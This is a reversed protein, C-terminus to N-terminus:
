GDNSLIASVDHDVWYKSASPEFHTGVKGKCELYIAHSHEEDCLLAISGTQTHRAIKPYPRSIHSGSNIVIKM